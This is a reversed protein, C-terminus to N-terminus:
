AKFSPRFYLITLSTIIKASNFKDQILKKKLNQTQVGEMALHVGYLKIKKYLNKQSKHNERPIGTLEVLLVLWWLIASINNITANFVMVRLERKDSIVSYLKCVPELGTINLNPISDECINLKYDNWEIVQLFNKCANWLKM